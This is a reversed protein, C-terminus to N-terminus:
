LNSLSMEWRALWEAAAAEAAGAVKMMISNAWLIFFIVHLFVFFIM